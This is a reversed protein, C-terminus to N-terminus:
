LELKVNVKGASKELIESIGDARGVIRVKYPTINTDRFVLALANWAAFYYVYDKKVSDTESAGRTDAKKPLAAYYEHEGSRTMELTVPCMSRISEDLANNESEMVFSQGNVTLKM